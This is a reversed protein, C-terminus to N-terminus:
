CSFPPVGHLRIFHSRAAGVCLSSLFVATQKLTHCGRQPDVVIYFYAHVVTM